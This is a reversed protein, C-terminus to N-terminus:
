DSTPMEQMAGDTEGAKLAQNISAEDGLPGLAVFFEGKHMELQHALHIYQEPIEIQYRMEGSPGDGQRKILQIPCRIM